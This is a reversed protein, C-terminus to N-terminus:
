LLPIPAELVPLGHGAKRSRTKSGAYHYLYGYDSDKTKNYIIGLAGTASKRLQEVAVNVQRVTTQDEAVVLLVLDALPALLTADVTALLPPTDWIVIDAQTTLQNVAESLVASHWFAAHDISLSGSTLAHLGPFPTAHLCRQLVSRDLVSDVLGPALPLHYVRHLCPNRQDGDVIIVQQGMQALAAGLNAAITSKGAGPEASTIIVTLPGTSSYRGLISAGLAHYAEIAAAAAIAPSRERARLRGNVQLKPIRGVLDLQTLAHLEDASHITAVLGEFLFALGVGAMLGIVAALVLNRKVNPKSPSVPVKAPEVVSISNARLVAQVRAQEYQSLLMAYTQEEARIKAALSSASTSGPTADNAAALAARDAALQSEVAALQDLLIQRTDKGEGTYIKQGQEILLDGLTNVIAAAQSPDRHDVSVRILETNPLAEIRVSEALDRTDLDLALRRKTEELFPRSKLIQVYTEILRQGYNLDSYSVVGSTPQAVRLLGSATYIPTMQYSGFGVVVVTLVATLLVVMKRQNLIRAYRQIEM